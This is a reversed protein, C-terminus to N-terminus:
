TARALRALAGLPSPLSHLAEKLESQRTLQVAIDGRIEALLRAKHLGVEQRILSAAEAALEELGAPLGKSINEGTRRLAAWKRAEAGIQALRSRDGRVNHFDRYGGALSLQIVVDGVDKRSRNSVSVKLKDEWHSARKGSARSDIFGKAPLPIKVGPPLVWLVCKNDELTPAGRHPWAAQFAELLTTEQEVVVEAEEAKALDKVAQREEREEDLLRELKSRRPVKTKKSM